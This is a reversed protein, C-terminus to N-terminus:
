RVMWNRSQGAKANNKTRKSRRSWQVRGTDPEVEVFAGDVIIFRGPVDAGNVRLVWLVLGDTTKGVQNAQGIPMPYSDSDGVGITWHIQNYQVRGKKTATTFLAM